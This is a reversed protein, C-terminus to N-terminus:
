WITKARFAYLPKIQCYARILCSYNLCSLSFNTSSCTVAKRITRKFKTITNIVSLYYIQRNCIIARIFLQIFKHISGCM